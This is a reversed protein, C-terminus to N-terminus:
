SGTRPTATADLWRTLRKTFRALRKAAAEQSLHGAQVERQLLAEMDATLAAELGQVTKGQAAAVASLSKGSALAQRLAMPTLGLYAAARGEIGGTGAFSKAVLKNLRASFRAEFRAAQAADMKGQRVAEMLTAHYAEQIASTLGSVSKGESEAIEKLSKGAELEGVLQPVSKGLYAAAAKVVVRGLRRRGQHVFLTRWQGQEVAQELRAARAPSLRGAAEEAKLVHVAAAQAASELRNTSVGLEGALTDIFLTPPRFPPSAAWAPAGAATVFLATTTAVVIPKLRL